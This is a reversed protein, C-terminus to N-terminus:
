PASEKRAAKEVLAEKDLERLVKPVAWPQYGLAACEEALWRQRMRDRRIQRVRRCAFVAALAGIGGVLFTLSLPWGLMWEVVGRLQPSSISPAGFFAEWARQVPFPTWRGETLWGNLQYLFLAIGYYILCIGFTIM